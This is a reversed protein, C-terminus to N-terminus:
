DPSCKGSIRYVQGIQNIEVGDLAEEIEEFVFELEPRPFTSNFLCDYVAEDEVQIDIRFYKKVDSLVKRMRDDSFILTDTMWAITNESITSDVVLDQSEKVVFAAQDKELTAPEVDKNNLPEFKVKGTKVVLEVRTEDPYARLNFSTGLVTTRADGADVSFPRNEDRAIEFFAEGELQIKRKKFKSDYVLRSDKNLWVKSGDPLILPEDNLQEALIEEPSSSFPNIVFWSAVILLAISAAIKWNWRSKRSTLTLVNSPPAASVALVPDDGLKDEFSSWAEDLNTNFSEDAEASISWLQIMEDFFQRNAEDLNAWHLLASREEADINGSLYKAVLDLYKADEM